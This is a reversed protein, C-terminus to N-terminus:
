PDDGDHRWGVVRGDVLVRVMRTSRLRTVTGAGIGRISRLDDLSRLRSHRRHAVLARARQVGIGPLWRLRGPPDRALDIAIPPVPERGPPVSRVADLAAPLLLWGCGLLLLRLLLRDARRRRARAVPPLLPGPPM